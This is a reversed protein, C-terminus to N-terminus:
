SELMNCLWIYIGSFVIKFYIFNLHLFSLHMIYKSHNQLKFIFLLSLPILWFQISFKNNLFFFFLIIDCCSYSLLEDEYSHAHLELLPSPPPVCVCLCVRKLFQYSWMRNIKLTTLKVEIHALWFWKNKSYRIFLSDCLSFFFNTPAQPQSQPIYLSPLSPPFTISSESEGNNYVWLPVDARSESDKWSSMEGASKNWGIYPDVYMWEIEPETAKSEMMEAWPGFNSGVVSGM